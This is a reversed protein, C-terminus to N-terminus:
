KGFISDNHRKLIRLEKPYYNNIRNSLSNIWGLTYNKYTVVQWGQKNPIIHLDSKQLFKIAQEFSLELFPIKLSLLKSLALGHQPILKDRLVQGIAIGAHYVNLHQQLFSYDDFLNEPLAYISHHNYFFSYGKESIWKDIVGQEQKSVQGARKTKIKLSSSEERKRFCALFFGEGKLKDPFFRYGAASKKTFLTEVIGWTANIKLKENKMKFEEVLWDGIEEDEEKSYSCTSYILVGDKKLSPMVDALIRQQRQSCLAVNNLSWEEVAEADKRFLGSGSCPADVVIVDFYGELMSFHKPDNYTVIVNECGWKTINQVLVPVRNKIVENTILLSEKSILSQIHTSKGGPAGCLDLLKLPQSLDVTQQLAQELFMSSAEQVYYCGAHFLPDFTFSPRQDLYYGYQSWPVAEGLDGGTSPVQSSELLKSPNIRISTIQEGSSHVKEFTQRDFGQIGELSKILNEPLQM